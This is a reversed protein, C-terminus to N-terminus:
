GGHQLKDIVPVDLFGGLTAGTERVWRWDSLALLHLRGPDPGDLVLNLEYGFFERHVTTQQEGAGQLETVSHRGSYLLQVARFGGLPYTREVRRERGFGARREVRLQGTRRDFRFWRRGM